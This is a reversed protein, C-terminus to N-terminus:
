RTWIILEVIEVVVRGVVGLVRPFLVAIGVIILGIGTIICLGPLFGGGYSHVLRNAMHLLGLAICFCTLSALVRLLTVQWQDRKRPEANM